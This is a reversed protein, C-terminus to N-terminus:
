FAWVLEMVSKLNHVSKLYKEWCMGSYHWDCSSKLYQVWLIRNSQCQRHCHVHSFSLSFCRPLFVKMKVSGEVGNSYLQIQHIQSICIDLDWQHILRKAGKDVWRYFSLFNCSLIFYFDFFFFFFSLCYISDSGTPRSRVTYSRWPHMLSRALQEM